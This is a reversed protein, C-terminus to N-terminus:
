MEAKSFFVHFFLAQYKIANNWYAWNHVGPRETYDHAIKKDLLLQHLNRNVQLFFDDTGCDIIITLGSSQLQEALNIVTNNNWNDPHSAYDGLWKKIGWNNPFPRIDVGGSTSGIAGHGGM